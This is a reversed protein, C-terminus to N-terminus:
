ALKPPHFIDFIQEQSLYRPQVAQLDPNVIPELLPATILPIFGFCTECSLFPNCLDNCDGDHDCLDEACEISTSLDLLSLSPEIILFGIFITLIITLVKM